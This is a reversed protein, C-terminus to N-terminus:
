METYVELKRQGNGHKIGCAVSLIGIDRYPESGTDTTLIM